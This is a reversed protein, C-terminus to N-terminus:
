KNNNTTDRSKDDDPPVIYRQYYSLLLSTLPLAIIMGIVGLLSGWISLSLLIIAPNLGTANGMIRPVLFGDQIIQVTLYVATTSIALLWFNSGTDAAGIICLLAAPIYSLIQMYPIMNLLGVLLGLPIAMPLGVILFGVCHLVGVISAVLTQGRFYRNMSDKVDNGISFIPKRYKCPILRSFGSIIRDYDLLIFFVYLLVIGWSIITILGHVSSSLLNYAQTFINRGLESWQERSLLASINELSIYKKIADQLEQPFFPIDSTSSVYVTALQYLHQTENIIMPVILAIIAALIITIETLTLIIAAIRKRLRMIRQNWEVIPNIMYAILWAVFFPLLVGKLRNILLIIGTIIILAIVIRVVRDFTFPRKFYDIM